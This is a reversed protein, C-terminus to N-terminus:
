SLNNRKNPTPFFLPIQVWKDWMWVVLIEDCSVDKVESTKFIKNITGNFADKSDKVDNGQGIKRKANNSM